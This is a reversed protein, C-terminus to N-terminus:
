GNRWTRLLPGKAGYVPDKRPPGVKPITRLAKEREKSSTRCEDYTGNAPYAGVVLFDRSARLCQHGTGAPLIAVDGVKLDLRRGRSGGFRV